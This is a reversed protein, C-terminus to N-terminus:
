GGPPSHDLFEESTLRLDVYEGALWLYFLDLYHRSLPNGSQGGPYVGRGQPLDDLLAPAFNVIMRWSPGSTVILRNDELSAGAVDVTFPGGDRPLVDSSLAQLQTLHRLQIRHFEGWTWTRVDGGMEEELADLAEVYASLIIEDRTEIGPTGLNDFWPSLPRERTMVELVSFSPLGVDQLGEAEWEDRFTAERYLHLWMLYLTPAVEEAEMDFDTWASLIGLSETALPHLSSGGDPESEAAQLLFPVFERAALSVHDQQLAITDEVTVEEDSALVENIRLARYRDAWSWGLYPDNELTPLQNASVLYGQTPNFAMPALDFPVFGTWDFDGSSGDVPVRGLGEQRVPFLGTTRIGINGEGDAYVINQAPVHFDELAASFETWNSAKNLALIARIEQTPRHGTWQMAVTQNHSTLMPGHRSIRMEMAFSSAGKVHILEQRKQFQVWQGNYLYLDQDDPRVQEVFFDVVDAGTNTFGWAIRENFGLVPLPFGLLAVGYVNYSPSRLRVQYWISPLTLALHPDNALLPAGSYTRSGAVVWNNSGGSDPPALITRLPSLYALLDRVGEGTLPSQPSSERGPVPPAPSGTPPIIPVQLPMEVPFLEELAAAGYSDQFLQLELDEFSGSLTWGMLKAFAVSDLPTWPAPAYNLLKFELPLRDTGAQGLYANVGSSYAELADRTDADMAGESLEAAWRLGISRMLIDTELLSPGLVEALEGKALRRQADMQFLRDSAQLYGVAMLLDRDDTAFVHPVYHEDRYVRVEGSAGPLRLVQRDIPIADDAITWFGGIPEM